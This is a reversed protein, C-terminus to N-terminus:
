INTFIDIISSICNRCIKKNAFDSLNLASGCFTCIPEYPKIVIANEDTDIFIEAKIPFDTGLQSRWTLPIRFRGDAFFSQEICEPDSKDSYYPKVYILGGNLKIFIYEGRINMDKRLKYPIQIYYRNTIKTSYETPVLNM